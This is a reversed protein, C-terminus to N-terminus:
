LGVVFKDGSLPIGGENFLLLTAPCISINVNIDYKYIQLFIQLNTPFLYSTM